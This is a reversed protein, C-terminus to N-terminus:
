ISWIGSSSNNQHYVELIATLYAEEAAKPIYNYIKLNTLLAERIQQDSSLNMDRVMSISEDLMVMGTPVGHILIRRINRVADAQCCPIDNNM